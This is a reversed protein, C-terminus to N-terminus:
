PWDLMSVWAGASCGLQDPHFGTIVFQESRYSGAMKDVISPEALLLV